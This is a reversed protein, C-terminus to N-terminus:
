LIVLKGLIQGGVQDIKQRIQLPSWTKSIPELDPARGPGLIKGQSKGSYEGLLKFCLFSPDLQSRSGSDRVGASRRTSM